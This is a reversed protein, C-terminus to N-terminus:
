GKGKPKKRPKGSEGRGGEEPDDHKHAEKKLERVAKTPFLRKAAQELNLEAAPKKKRPM